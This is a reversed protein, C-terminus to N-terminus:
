QLRLNVGVTKEQGARIIKVEVNELKDRLKGLARKMTRSSNIKMKAIEVIVDGECFDAEAAPSNQAIGRVFAGNTNQIKLNDMFQKLDGYNYANALAPSIDSTVLGLSPRRVQGDRIIVDMLARATNIPIAYSIGIYADTKAGYIASNIGVVEGRLNIMPGGSNGHNVAVDSQIRGETEMILDADKDMERMASVVGMTLSYKLGFPTGIAIVIDGVELKNSDGLVVQYLDAPPDIIQIVAVDSPSPDSGILKAKFQREDQLIVTIETANAVVHENTLIYGKKKDVIFGSGQGGVPKGNSPDKGTMFIIVTAPSVAKGVLVLSKPTLTPSDPLPVSPPPAAKSPTKTTDTGGPKAPKAPEAWIFVIFGFLVILFLSKKILSVM